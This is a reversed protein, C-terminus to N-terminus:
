ALACRCRMRRLRLVSQRWTGGCASHPLPHDNCSRNHTRAHTRACFESPANHPVNKMHLGDEQPELDSLLRSAAAANNLRMCVAAPPLVVVPSSSLLAAARTHLLVAERAAEIGEERKGARLAHMAKVRAREGAETLHAPTQEEGEEAEPQDGQLRALLQRAQKATAPPAAALFWESLTVRLLIALAEDKQQMKELLLALEVNATARTEHVEPHDPFAVLTPQAVPVDELAVM